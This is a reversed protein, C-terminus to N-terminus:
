NCYSELVFIGLLDDVLYYVYGGEKVDDGKVVWWLWLFVMVYDIWLLGLLM